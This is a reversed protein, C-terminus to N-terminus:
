VVEALIKRAGRLLDEVDEPKPDDKKAHVCLNRLDALRQILRWTIQEIIQTAKLADNFDGITPNKKQIAIQHNECAASLHSELMVGALAGAARLHGKNKLEDAADLEHRFLNFQLIGKINALVNDVAAATACLIQIQNNFKACFSNLNKGEGMQAFITGILYDQITYTGWSYSKRAPPIEYYSRFEALRDPALQRILPICTTYWRQYSANLQWEKSLAKLEKESVGAAKHTVVTEKPQKRYLEAVYIRLADAQLEELLKKLEEKTVAPVQNLSHVV